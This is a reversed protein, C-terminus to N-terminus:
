FLFICYSWNFHKEVGWRSIPDLNGGEFMPVYTHQSHCKTVESALGYFTICSEGEEKSNPSNIMSCLRWIMLFGLCSMSLVIHFPVSTWQEYSQQAGLWCSASIQWGHSHAM